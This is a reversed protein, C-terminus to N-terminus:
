KAPKWKQMIPDDWISGAIQNWQRSVETLDGSKVARPLAEQYFGAARQKKREAAEKLDLIYQNAAPTNKLQAYIDMARKADGETQMGKAEMLTKNVSDM